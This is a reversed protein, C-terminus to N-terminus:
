IFDKLIDIVEKLKDKINEKPMITYYNDHKGWEKDINEDKKLIEKIEKPLDKGYIKKYKSVFSYLHIVIDYNDKLKSETTNLEKLLKSWEEKTFEKKYDLLSDNYLTINQNNREDNYREIFEEKKDDMIKSEYKIVNHKLLEKTIDRTGSFIPGLLLVNLNKNKTLYSFLELLEKLTVETGTDLDYIPLNFYKLNDNIDLIYKYISPNYEESSLKRIGIGIIDEKPIMNEILIEGELGGHTIKYSDDKKIILTINPVAFLYYSLTNYECVCITNLGNTGEDELFDNASSFNDKNLRRQYDRSLIGEELINSLKSPNQLGHYYYNNREM